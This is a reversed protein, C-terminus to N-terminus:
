EFDVDSGLLMRLPFREDFARNALQAGKVPRESEVDVADVQVRDNKRIPPRGSEDDDVVGVRVVKAPQAELRSVQGDALEGGRSGFVDCEDTDQQPLADDRALRETIPECRRRRDLRTARRM